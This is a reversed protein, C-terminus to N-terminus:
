PPRHDRAAHIWMKAKVARYKLHHHPLPSQYLGRVQQLQESSYHDTKNLALIIPKNLVCLQKIEESQSRTLDGDCVYIVLHARMAEQRRRLFDSAEDGRVFSMHPIRNIFAAPDDLIGAETLYAWFHKSTEFQRNIRVAKSIDITRDANEATYNLECLAAHGTGANNWAHSSEAAVRPLAEVIRLTLNPNLQRLMTGLTASMIGGGILVVDPDDIVSSSDYETQM